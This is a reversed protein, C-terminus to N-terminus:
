DQRVFAELADGEEKMAGIQDELTDLSEDYLDM